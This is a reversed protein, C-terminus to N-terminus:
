DNKNKMLRVEIQGNAIQVEFKPQPETAPGDIVSGDKLSFVSHHWPCRVACNDLLDGDCLPGGLHSCTNALAFIEGNKKALLVAIEGAKVSKMSNDALENEPLVAVFDQPYEASIATHDVGVQEVYVLHGGLYAAASTIGYGLMALGIATKRSGEKKRLYYSTAYLATAGVNLIGHMLGIQRKKKTTGSWDTIGSVAAGAAGILGIVIAADAGPKYKNKGLLELGDLVAAASWSGVPVDTIIPHLPHGLWTGHLFNKIKQGTKGGAKYTNIVAPQIADGAAKLWEQKAITDMVDEANM